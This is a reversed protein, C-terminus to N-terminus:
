IEETRFSENEASPPEALVQHPVRAFLFELLPTEPTQSSSLHDVKFTM